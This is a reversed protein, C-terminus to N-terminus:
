RHAPSDTTPPTLVSVVGRAARFPGFEIAWPLCLAARPISRWLFCLAWRASVEQKRGEGKIPTQKAFSSAPLTQAVGAKVNGLPTSEARVYVAVSRRHSQVRATSKRSGTQTNHPEHRHHERSIRISRECRAPLEAAYVKSLDSARLWLSCNVVAPAQHSKSSLLFFL